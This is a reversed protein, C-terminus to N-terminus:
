VQLACPFRAIKEVETVADIIVAPRVGDHEYGVFRCEGAVGEFHLQPVAAVVVGFPMPAVHVRREVYRGIAIAGVRGKLQIHVLYIEIM